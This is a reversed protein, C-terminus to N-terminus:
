WHVGQFRQYSPLPQTSWVPPITCNPCNTCIGTFCYGTSCQAPQTCQQGNALLCKNNTCVMAGPRCDQAATEATCNGDDRACKHDKPRCFGANCLADGTCPQEPKLLCAKSGPRFEVCKQTASCDTDAACNSGVPVNKKHGLAKALGFAGGAIVVVGAALIIWWPFQHREVVQKVLIPVPASEAYIEDPEALSSVVIHFSYTGEKLKAPLQVKVTILKTEDAALETEARDPPIHLWSGDTEGDARVVARTRISRPLKNSVTFAVEAAEGSNMKVRPASPTSDFARPM